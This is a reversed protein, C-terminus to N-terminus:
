EFVDHGIKQNVHGLQTFNFQPKNKVGLWALRKKKKNKMGKSYTSESSYRSLKDLKQKSGEVTRNRWINM